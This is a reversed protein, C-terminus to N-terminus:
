TQAGTRHDDSPPATDDHPRLGLHPYRRPRARETLYQEFYAVNRALGIEQETAHDVPRRRFPLQSSFWRIRHRLLRLRPLRHDAHFFHHAVHAESRGCRRAHELLHQRSLRALDFHHVALGDLSGAVLRAGAFHLQHWLFLDEFMGLGGPGIREDFRVRAAWPRSLSFSASVMSPFALDEAITEAYALRLGRTMWPRELDPAMRVQGAVADAEGALVPGVLAAAWGETVEVDDDAFLIVAGATEDIGRNRARSAGAVPEFRVRVRPDDFPEAGPDISPRDSNDVVVVEAPLGLHDLSRVLSAVTRAAGRPRHRTPVVVSVVPATM